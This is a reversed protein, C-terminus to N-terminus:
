EWYLPFPNTGSPCRKWGRDCRTALRLVVASRPQSDERTRKGASRAEREAKHRTVSVFRDVCVFSAQSRSKQGLSVGQM